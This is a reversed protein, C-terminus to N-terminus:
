AYTQEQSTVAQTELLTIVATFAGTTLALALLSILTNSSM